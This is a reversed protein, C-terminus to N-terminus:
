PLFRERRLRVNQRAQSDTARRRGVPNDNAVAAGEQILLVPQADPNPIPPSTTLQQDDITAPANQTSNVNYHQILEHGVFFLARYVLYPIPGASAPTTSMVMSSLLALAAVWLIRKRM